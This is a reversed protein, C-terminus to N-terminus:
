ERILATNYLYENEPILCYLREDNWHLLSETMVLSRDGTPINGSRYPQPLYGFGNSDSLSALRINDSRRMGEFHLERRREDIILQWLQEKDSINRMAGLGARERILNLEQLALETKNQHLYVEARMLHFESARLWVINTTPYAYKLSTWQGSPAERGTNTTTYIMRQCRLDRTTDGRLFCNVLSSDMVLRFRASALDNNQLNRFATWQFLAWRSAITPQFASNGHFAMILESSNNPRVNIKDTAQFLQAYNVGHQLPYATSKGSENRLLQNLYIGASDFENKQFYVKALMATAVDRKCRFQYAAHHVTKDYTEPLLQQARKLDDIMFRYVQEVTKRPEPIDEFSLIARRRYLTAPMTRTSAHYQRGIYLNNYFETSARLLLAEGLLRQANLSDRRNKLVPLEEELSHIVVNCNNTVYSGWQLLIGAQYDDVNCRYSFFYNTASIPFFEPQVQQNRTFTAEDSGLVQTLVIYSYYSPSSFAGYAGNICVDLDNLEYLLSQIDQNNENRVSSLFGECSTLLLPLLAVLLKRTWDPYRHLM